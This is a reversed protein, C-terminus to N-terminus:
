ERENSMERGDSKMRFFQSADDADELILLFRGNKEDNLWEHVLELSDM